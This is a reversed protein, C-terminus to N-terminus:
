GPLWDKYIDQLYFRKAPRPYFNCRDHNCLYNTAGSGTLKKNHRLQLKSDLDFRELIEEKFQVWSPDHNHLKFYRYWERVDGILYTIITKVKYHDATNYIDFNFECDELWEVIGTGDFKNLKTKPPHWKAM